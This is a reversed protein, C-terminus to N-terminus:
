ALIAPPARAPPIHPFASLNGAGHAAVPFDALLVSSLPLSVPAIGHDQAQIQTCIGCHDPHSDNIDFNHAIINFQGFSIVLAILLAISRNRVHIM